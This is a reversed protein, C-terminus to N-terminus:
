STGYSPGAEFNVVLPSTLQGVSYVTVVFSTVKARVLVSSSSETQPYM